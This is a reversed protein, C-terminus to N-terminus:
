RIGLWDVGDILVLAYKQQDDMVMTVDITLNDRVLSKVLVGEEGLRLCESIQRQSNVTATGTLALVCTVGLVDFLVNPLSLYSPRFTHSWESLCHAEDVCAFWIPPMKGQAVFERFKPCTLREPSIFLVDIDNNELREYIDKHTGRDDKSNSSCLADAKLGEPINQLQDMMLAITPMIVLTLGHPALKRQTCLKFVLAPFQYCLSKGGGTQLILCSSNSELIRSICEEQGPRFVDFGFFTSLATQLDVSVISPLNSHKLTLFGECEEEKIFSQSNIKKSKSKQAVKELNTWDEDEEEVPAPGNNAPRRSFRRFSSKGGRGKGYKSKLKM